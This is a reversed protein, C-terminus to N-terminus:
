QHKHVSMFTYTHKNQFHENKLQPLHEVQIETRTDIRVFDRASVNNLVYGPTFM